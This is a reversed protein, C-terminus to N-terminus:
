HPRLSPLPRTRVHDQHHRLRHDVTRVAEIFDNPERSDRLAAGVLALAVELEEVIASLGGGQYAAWSAFLHAALFAKTSRDFYPRAPHGALEGSTHNGAEARSMQEPHGSRLRLAVPLPDARAAFSRSIWAALPDRGPNWRCADATAAAIIALAEAASYRADNLVAIGEREWADYGELDMLMGPRLLPPMVGTADLGEVTGDLTISGPADVIAIAGTDLLLAAATPCFHSLTVFLGRPDRLAIRPFNRCATPLLAPGADKHIACLRGHDRDYFVCAGDAATGLITAGGDDASAITHADIMRRARLGAVIRDDVQIPWGATCCAGSHACKYRAHVSLCSARM